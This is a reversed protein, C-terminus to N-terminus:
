LDIVGKSRLSPDLTLDSWELLCKWMELLMEVVDWVDIVLLLRSFNVYFTLSGM